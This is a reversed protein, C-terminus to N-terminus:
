YTQWEKSNMINRAQAQAQAQAQQQQFAIGAMADLFPNGTSTPGYAFQGAVGIRRISSEPIDLVKKDKAQYYIINEAPM